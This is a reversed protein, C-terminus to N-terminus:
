ISELPQWQAQAQIKPRYSLVGFTVTEAGHASGALWALLCLLCRLSTRM